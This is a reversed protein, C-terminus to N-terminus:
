RGLWNLLQRKTLGSERLIRRIFDEGLDKSSHMPIPVSSIGNSYISHSTGRQRVYEFGHETLFDVVARAPLCLGM